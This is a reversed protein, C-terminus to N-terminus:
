LECMGGTVRMVINDIRIGYNISACVKCPGCIQPWPNFAYCQSDPIDCSLCAGNWRMDYNVIEHKLTAVMNPIDFDISNLIQEETWSSDVEFKAIGTTKGSTSTGGGAVVSININKNPVKLTVDVSGKEINTFQVTYPISVQKTPGGGGQLTITVQNTSNNITTPNVTASFTEGVETKVSVATITKGFMATPYPIAEAAVDFGLQALISYTSGGATFTIYEAQSGSPSASGKNVYTSIDKTPEGGGAKQRVTAVFECGDDSVFVARGERYGGSNDEAKCVYVYRESDGGTSLYTIWSDSDSRSFALPSKSKTSMAVGVGVNDKAGEEANINIFQYVTCDTPSCGPITYTTSSSCGDGDTYTIRYTKSNGVAEPFWANGSDDISATSPSISWAM